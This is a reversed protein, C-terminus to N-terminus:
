ARLSWHKASASCPYRLTGHALWGARYLTHAGCFREDTDGDAPKRGWLEAARANGTGSALLSDHPLVAQSDSSTLHVTGSYTTVVTNSADM